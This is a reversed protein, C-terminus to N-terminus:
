SIIRWFNLRILEIVWNRWKDWLSSLSFCVAAFPGETNFNHAVRKNWKLTVQSFDYKVRCFQSQRYDDLHLCESPHHTVSTRKARYDGSRSFGGSRGFSLKQMFNVAPSCFNWERPGVKKRLPWWCVASGSLWTYMVLHSKDKRECIPCGYIIIINAQVQHQHSVFSPRQLHTIRWIGPTLHKPRHIVKHIPAHTLMAPAGSQLTSKRRKEKKTLNSSFFVWNYKTTKPLEMFLLIQNYWRNFLM